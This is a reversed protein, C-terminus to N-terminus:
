DEPLAFAAYTSGSPPGLLGGGAAVVVFQRGDVSYSVPTAYGGAM